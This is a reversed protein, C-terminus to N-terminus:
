ARVGVVDVPTVILEFLKSGILLRLTETETKEKRNSRLHHHNNNITKDIRSSEIVFVNPIPLLFFYSPTSFFVLSPVASLCLM